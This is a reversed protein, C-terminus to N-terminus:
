PNYVGFYIQGVLAGGHIIESITMKAGLKNVITIEFPAASETLARELELRIFIWKGTIEPQTRYHMEKTLAVIEEIPSFQSKAGQRISDNSIEANVLMESESYPISAMVPKGTEVIYGKHSRGAVHACVRGMVTADGAPEDDTRMECISHAMKRMVLSEIFADIGLWERFVAEAADFLDNGSIYNRPEKLPINLLKKM